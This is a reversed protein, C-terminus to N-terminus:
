RSFFRWLFTSTHHSLTFNRLGSNLGWYQL